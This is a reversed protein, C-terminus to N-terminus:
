LVIGALAWSEDDALALDTAKVKSNAAASSGFLSARGLTSNATSGSPTSSGTAFLTSSVAPTVSATQIAPAVASMVASGVGPNVTGTAQNKILIAGVPNTLKVLFTEAASLSSDAKVAVTINQTITGIAFTLTGSTAVFDNVPLTGAATAYNVTTQFGSPASLTVAFVANVTGSSPDTLTKDAITMSPPSNFNLITGTGTGNVFANTPNSLKLSFTETPGFVTSALIPVTVPQSTVGPAFTLTGTEATYDTGATATGDATVYAVTVPSLTPASLTVTFVMSTISTGSKAVSPSNPTASETIKLSANTNSGSIKLFYPTGLAANGILVSGAAESTSTALVNFNNDYLTMTVTGSASNFLSEFKRANQWGNDFSVWVDGQTLDMNQTGQPLGIFGTTESSALYARRNSFAAVFQARLGLEAFNVNTLALGATVVENTYTNSTPAGTVFFGPQTEVVNYSGQPLGLFSYSGDAATLTSKTFLPKGSSDTATSNVTIMVGAIGVEGPDKVGNANVDVYVFGSIGSPQVFTITGTATTNGLTVHTPSSLQLTFTLSGVQTLTQITPVTITGTRQGAPITLVGTTTTYNVGAIATGNATAYNITIPFGSAQSLTVKFQVPQGENASANAITATPAPNNYQITGTGPSTGITANVPNTLNVLFTKTPEDESNPLVHVTINQSTTGVPFNLTGSTANYDTGSIATGNATSFQVSAVTPDPVIRTVTFVFDIGAATDVQTVNNISFSNAGVDVVNSNIYDVQNIPVPTDQTFLLVDHKPHLQAPLATFQLIGAGEAMMPVTFLLQENPGLPTGHQYRLGGIESFSGATSLDGSEVNTYNSAFIIGGDAPEGPQGAYSVNLYAAAVGMDANPVSTRLDKVFAEVDFAQGAALPTTIPQLTIPDVVALRIQAEDNATTGSNEITATAQGTAIIANVPNSLNLLFTQDPHATANGNVVVTVLQTTIGPAFTLTGATALYDTPTHATGDTTAYQVTVQQASAVPLIVTFVANVQGSDPQLVTINSVTLGNVNPNHITGIAQARAVGVGGTPSSLNVLFTKDASFVASGFVPVTINQTTVGPSFTLIGSQAVYDTGAIATQNATAYGVTVQDPVAGTLTVSFVFNTVGSTAITQTVDDITLAPPAVTAVGQGDAISSGGTPNSLNLFFSTAPQPLTDGNVIVTVPQTVVGPAFTLIGSKAVYAGNSVTATGDATAYAVTSQQMLPAGLSVTFVAATTVSAPFVEPVSVDNVSFSPTAVSDIIAGTAVGSGSQITANTPTKLTLSFNQTGTSTTNGLIPVTITESTAGLPFVVQGITSAYDVGAKAGTTGTGDTTSYNVAAYLETPGTLTVTFVDDVTGTTPRVVAAPTSITFKPAANASTITGVALTTGISANTPSSLNVTFTPSPNYATSGLVSVTIIKTTDGPNFTLTGATSAYDRGATANGNAYGPGPVPMGDATSYNVTITQASPNTLTVTFFENTTGSAPRAM